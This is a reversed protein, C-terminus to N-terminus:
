AEEVASTLPLWAVQIGNVHFALGLQGHIQLLSSGAQVAGPLVARSAVCAAGAALSQPRAARLAAVLGAPDRQGVALRCLALWDAREDDQPVSEGPAVPRERLRGLLRRLHQRSAAESRGTLPGLEAHDFGFVEHLLVVAGDVAPLVHALHQLAAELRRAQEVLQEPHAADLGPSGTEAERALIGRYRERRRLVDICLHRLVTALWAEHGAATPPLDGTATRLYTDQVLDEAESGDALWRRALALLRRRLARDEALPHSAHPSTVNM